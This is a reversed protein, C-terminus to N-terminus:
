TRTLKIVARPRTCLHLPNSQAELDVGKGMKKLEQKAYYPLGNTNVTEMYDAPAFRTIFLDPVGEPVAYAEDPGVYAVGGVKGRYREFTCGGYDLADRPDGRLSAALQSNLYTKEVEPHVILNAWFDRGCLVRVGSFAVNGLVEEIKEQVELCKVRLETTEVDLAFDIVQQALGFATFLNVLETTADADLILGKIAGIRHWEHTADLQQRFKALRKDVITQVSQLETESGFARVNQVEDANISGTQPLHVANFPIMNRKGGVVVQGTSGRTGSGVLALTEGDKEVQVTTTTIGEEAFIGLQAIRGPVHPQENISATLSALSFADDNFIDLSPM